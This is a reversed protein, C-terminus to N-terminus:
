KIVLEWRQWTTGFKNEADIRVSHVGKDEETPTFRIEGTAGTINFLLTDTTFTFPGQEKNLINATYVFEEGVSVTKSHIPEMLPKNGENVNVNILLPGIVSRGVGDIVRVYYLYEDNPYENTDLTIVGSRTDIILDEPQIAFTLNTGVAEVSYTHIGPTTINWGNLERLQLPPEAQIIPEEELNTWDYHLVFSYILPEKKLQEQYTVDVVVNSGSPAFQTIFFQEVAEALDGLLFSSPEEKQLALYTSLQAYKEKFSFPVAITFSQLEAQQDALYLVLPYEVSVLTNPDEFRVTIVPPTSGVIVGQEQFAAFNDVCSELFPITAEATEQEIQELSPLMIVEQTFYYPLEYAKEKETFNFIAADTPFDHYGGKSFVEYLANVM